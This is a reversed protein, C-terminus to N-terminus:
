RSLQRLWDKLLAVENASLTTSGDTNLAANLAIASMSVTDAGDTEMAPRDTRSIAALVADRARQSVSVDRAQPETAILSLAVGVNTALILQAAEEPSVVLRGQGAARTSLSLLLAQAEKVAAPPKGPTVQGFMVVYLAPNELAFEVHHDWGSRIDALPDDSAERARKVALYQEFGHAAVADLLGQKDGFHHYLTPAQVGALECIARTTIPAGNSEVLLRAAAELLRTRATPSEGARTM